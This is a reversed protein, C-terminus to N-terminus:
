NKRSSDGVYQDEKRSVITMDLTLLKIIWTQLYCCVSKAKGEGNKIRRELLVVSAIMM